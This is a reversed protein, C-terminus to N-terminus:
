LTLNRRAPPTTIHLEKEQDYRLLSSCLFFVGIFAILGFGISIMLHKGGGQLDTIGAQTKFTAFVYFQWLAIAASATVGAVALGLSKKSKREKM